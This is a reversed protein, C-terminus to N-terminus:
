IFHSLGRAELMIRVGTWVGSGKEVLEEEERNMLHRSFEDRTSSKQKWEHTLSCDPTQERQVAGTM